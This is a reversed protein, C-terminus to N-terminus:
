RATATSCSPSSPRARGRCRPAGERRRARLAVVGRLWHGVALPPLAVSTVAMTAVEGADRPGPGIRAWALEATGVLWSGAAALALRRRGSVGSALALLGALVTAAHRARRGAPAGARARWDAGHLARMLVDDANGAQLRLSVWPSAARVPHVVRRSGRELRWGAGLARLALDADERYARPFREDFGGLSELAKRRYAMDATAWRAGALGAVNREWDTPRRDAPLPVHLEGQVGAADPPAGRLDEALRELWDRDPVVDDDLFAVWDASSAHWGANRAAAPGRGPARVVQVRGDLRPPVPPRLPEGGARDDGLIVRGPLPGSAAGLGDLLAHLSPRGVTPVVVDFTPRGEAAVPRAPPEATWRPRPTL